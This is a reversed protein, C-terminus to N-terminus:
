KRELGPHLENLAGLQGKYGDLVGHFISCITKPKDSSVILYVFGRRVTKLLEFIRWRIPLYPLRSLYIANRIIYYHRVPSLHIPKFQGLYNIGVDGMNHTMEFKDSVKAVYGKSYARLCWEHDVGDIFLNELMPGITMYAEKSIVSGSTPISRPKHVENQTNNAGYTSKGAKQDVLQPGICALKVKNMSLAEAVLGGILGPTPLSDQDFLAVFEAACNDFAHQIGINLARALGVNARNNLVTVGNIEAIRKLVEDNAANVVVVVDFCELAISGITDIVQDAPHYLVLVSAIKNKM